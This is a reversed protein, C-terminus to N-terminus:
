AAGFGNLLMLTGDLDDSWSRNRLEVAVPCRLYRVARWTTALRSM